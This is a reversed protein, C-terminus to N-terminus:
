PQVLSYCIEACMLFAAFLSISTQELLSIYQETICQICISMLVTSHAMRSSLMRYYLTCAIGTLVCIVIVIYGFLSVLIAIVVTYTCMYM